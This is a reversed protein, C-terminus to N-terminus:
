GEKHPWTQQCCIFLIFLWILVNKVIIDHLVTSNSVMEMWLYYMKVSFLASTSTFKAWM